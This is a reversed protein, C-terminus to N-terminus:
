ETWLIKSARVHVHGMLGHFIKRLALRGRYWVGVGRSEASLHFLWHPSERLPQGVHAGRRIHSGGPPHAPHPQLGHGARKAGVAACVLVTVVLLAPVDPFVLM